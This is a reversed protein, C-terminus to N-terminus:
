FSASKVPYRRPCSLYLDERRQHYQVSQFHRNLVHNLSSPQSQMEFKHLRSRSGALPRPHFRVFRLSKRTNYSHFDSKNNRSKTQLNSNSNCNSHPIFALFDFLLSCHPIPCPRLNNARIPQLNYKTNGPSLRRDQLRRLTRLIKQKLSYMLMKLSSPCYRSKVKSM